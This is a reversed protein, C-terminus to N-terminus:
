QTAERVMEDLLDAGIAKADAIALIQAGADELSEADLLIRGIQGVLRADSREAAATAAIEEPPRRRLEFPVTM